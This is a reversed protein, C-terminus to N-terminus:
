TKAQLPGALWYLHFQLDALSGFSSRCRCKRVSRSRWRRRLAGLERISQSGQERVNGTDPQGGWALRGVDAQYHGSRLSRCIRVRPQRERSNSTRVSQGLASGVFGDGAPEPDRNVSGLEMDAGEDILEVGGAAGIRDVSHPEPDDMKSAKLQLSNEDPREDLFTCFEETSKFSALVRWERATDREILFETWRRDNKALTMGKVRLQM